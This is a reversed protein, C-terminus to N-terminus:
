KHGAAAKNAATGTTTRVNAAHTNYHNTFQTHHAADIHGNAHLHDVAKKTWDVCNEGPFAAKCHIGKLSEMAAKAHSASEFSGLVMHHNGQRSKDYGVGQGGKQIHETELIGHANAGGSVAHVTHWTASKHTEQPHFHMAWHENATGPASQHLAVHYKTRRYLAPEDFDREIMDPVEFDDRSEIDVLSASQSIPLASVVTAVGLLLVNVATSFRM